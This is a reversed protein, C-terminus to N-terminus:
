ASYIGRLGALLRQAKVVKEFNNCKNEKTKDLQGAHELDKFRDHKATTTYVYGRVTIDSTSCMSNPWM